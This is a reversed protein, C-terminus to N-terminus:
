NVGTLTLQLPSGDANLGGMTAQDTTLIATRDDKNTDVIYLSWTGASPEGNVNLIPGNPLSGGPITYSALKSNGGVDVELDASDPFAFALWNGSPAVLMLVLDSEPALGEPVYISIILEISQVLFNGTITFNNPLMRGIGIWGLDFPVREGAAEPIIGYNGAGIVITDSDPAAATTGSEGKNIHLSANRFLCRGDEDKVHDRIQARWTGASDMGDFEYLYDLEVQADFKAPDGTDVTKWGSATGDPAVVRCLLEVDDMTKGAPPVIYWHVRVETVTASGMAFEVSLWEDDDDTKSGNEPIKISRMEEPFTRANYYARLLSSSALARDPLPREKVDDDEWPAQCDAGLLVFVSLLLLLILRDKHM